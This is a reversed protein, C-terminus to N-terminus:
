VSELELYKEEYEMVDKIDYLIKRKHLRFYKPGKLQSRWNRLTGENLKWRSALDKSTLFQIM